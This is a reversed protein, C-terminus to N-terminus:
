LNRELSRLHLDLFGHLIPNIVHNIFYFRFFVLFYAAKGSNSLTELVDHAILSLLTMYLITTFIFVATLIFMILTKRKIKKGVRNRVPRRTSRRNGAQTIPLTNEMDKAGCMKSSIGSDETQKITLTTARRNLVDMAWTIPLNNRRAEDQTIQLQNKAGKWWHLQGHTKKNEEVLRIPLSCKAETQTIASKNESRQAQTIQSSNESEETWTIASIVGSRSVMSIPSANKKSHIQQMYQCHKANNQETHKDTELQETVQKEAALKPRKNSDKVSAIHEGSTLASSSDSGISTNGPPMFRGKPNSKGM